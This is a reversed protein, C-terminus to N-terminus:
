LHQLYYAAYDKAAQQNGEGTMHAGDHAPNCMAMQLKPGWTLYGPQEAIVKDIASDVYPPVYCDQMPASDNAGPGYDATPNCMMNNPCKVLEVIDVRKASPIKAKINAVSEKLGAIWDAETILEWDIALFVVRDPQEPNTTCPSQIPAGQADDMPNGTNGWFPSDAKRWESIHAHHHWKLEWNDNNVKAADGKGEFQGTNWWEMSLYAGMYMSCAFPGQPLTGGASGGTGGASGGGTGGADSGGGGTATGGGSTTGANGTTGGASTGGSTTGAV